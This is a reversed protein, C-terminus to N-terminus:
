RENQIDQILNFEVRVQLGGLASPRANIVGAHAAVINKCITLGLGAGSAQRTRSSDQRHLPEFLLECDTEPVSPYTDDICLTVKQESVQLRLRIAGNADTYAIANSCLNRLLQEIRQRDCSIWVAGSVGQLELTLQKQKAQDQFSELVLETIDQLDHQAFQYRLGGIDSLSLQYLDDVLRRLANIEQEFSMLQAEDFPRIGAKLVDIEGALITLPTRLEHSIDAFWRNKATRNEELTASLQAINRMLDGLEDKRHTEYTVSYNGKSLKDVDASIAKVPRLLRQAVLWSILGALLLSICGIVVTATLQQQSFRSVLPPLTNINPWSHLEGVKEGNLMLPMVITTSRTKPPLVNSVQQGSADYLATPPGLGFRHPPVHRGSQRGDDVIDRKPPPKHPPKDRPPPFTASSDESSSHKPPLQSHKPAHRPPPHRTPSHKPISQRPSSHERPPRGEVSGSNASVDIGAGQMRETFHVRAHERLYQEFDDGRVWDWSNGNLEYGKVLDGGIDSLRQQEISNTFELFGQQFSWRALLLSALLICSTLGLLTFFLKLSLRM